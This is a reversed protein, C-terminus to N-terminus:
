RRVRCSQGVLSTQIETCRSCTQGLNMMMTGPSRGATVVTRSQIASALRRLSSRRYRLIRPVWKDGSALLADCTRQEAVDSLRSSATLNQSWGILRDKVRIWNHAPTQGALPRRTTLPPQRRQAARVVTVRNVFPYWEFHSAGFADPHRSPVVSSQAIFKGCQARPRTDFNWSSKM